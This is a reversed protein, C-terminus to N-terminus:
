RVISHETDAYSRLFSSFTENMEDVIREFRESDLNIEKDDSNLASMESKAVEIMQDIESQTYTQDEHHKWLTRGNKLKFVSRWDLHDHRQRDLMNYRVFPNYGYTQRFEGFAYSNLESVNVKADPKGEPRILRLKELWKTAAEIETSLHRLEDAILGLRANARSIAESSLKSVASIFDLARGHIVFGGQDVYVRDHERAFARAKARATKIPDAAPARGPDYKGLSSDPIGPQITKDSM